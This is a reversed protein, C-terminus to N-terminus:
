EYNSFYKPVTGIPLKRSPSRVTNVDTNDNNTQMESISIGSVTRSVDISIPNLHPNSIYLQLAQRYQEAAKSGHISFIDVQAQPSMSMKLLITRACDLATRAISQNNKTLFYDIDDDSLLYFGVENDQLEIRIKEINSLAM